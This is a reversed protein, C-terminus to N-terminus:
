KILALVSEAAGREQLERVGDKFAQTDKLLPLLTVQNARFASLTMVNSSSDGFGPIENINIKIQAGGGSTELSIANVVNMGRAGEEFYFYTPQQQGDEGTYCPKMVVFSDAIAERVPTDGGSHSSAVPSSSGDGYRYIPGFLPGTIPSFFGTRQEADTASTVYHTKSTFLGVLGFGRHRHKRDIRHAPTNNLRQQHSTVASREYLYSHGDMDMFRTVGKLRMGDSFGKWAKVLAPIILPAAALAINTALLAVGKGLLPVLVPIAPVLPALAGVGATSLALTVIAGVTFILLGTAIYPHERFFWTIPRVVTNIPSTFVKTIAILASLPLRVIARPIVRWTYLKPSAGAASVLSVEDGEDLAVENKGANWWMDVQVVSDVLNSLASLVFEALKLPNLIKRWQLPRQFNRFAEMRGRVAVLKDDGSIEQIRSTPVGIYTAAKEDSEGEPGYVDYMTKTFAQTPTLAQPKRLDFLDGFFGGGSSIAEATVRNSSGAM